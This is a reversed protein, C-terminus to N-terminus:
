GFTNDEVIIPPARMYKIKGEWLVQKVREAVVMMDLLQKSTNCIMYKFYLVMFINLFFFIMEKKLYFLMSKLSSKKGHKLMNNSLKM